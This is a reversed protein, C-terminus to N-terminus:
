RTTVPQALGKALAEDLLTDMGRAAQASADAQRKGLAAQQTGLAAQQRGLEAQERGLAEQQAQLAQLRSQLAPMRQERDASGALAAQESALEAQRGALEGQRAGLGGQRGGLEGQQGGLRGQERALATVPAYLAKARALLAEDRIVYAQTGRRFWLLPEDSRRLARATAVDRSTGNMTISDGDFLAFGYAAGEDTDIDVHSAGRLDAPLAPPAPPPPPPPPPPPAPVNAPPPPPPAPPAPPVRQDGAAAAASAAPAAPAALAAPAAVAAAAPATADAPETARTVRYPLLGIAAVALVLLWGRARSSPEIHQLMTLRRKLNEFTPSAGALGAHLPHSVGLRLLLRGYEQPAARAHRLVQADCAAERQLAYERVAWRVLPHFFFLQQALAPVWALWLDGRRLHALEHDLAMALEAPTLTHEAPLLV